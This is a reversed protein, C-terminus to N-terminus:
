AEAQACAEGAEQKAVGLVGTAGADRPLHMEESRGDPGAIPQDMVDVLELGSLSPDVMPSRDM